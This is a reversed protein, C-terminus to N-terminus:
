RGPPIYEMLDDRVDRSYIVHVLHFEAGSKEVLWLGKLVAKRSVDSFDSPALIVKPAQVHEAKVFWVASPCKRILRKATSGVFFQKWGSAGRTGTMVLDYGEQQVVFTMSRM